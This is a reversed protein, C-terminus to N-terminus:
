IDGYDAVILLFIFSRGSLKMHSVHGVVRAHKVALGAARAMAYTGFYHM